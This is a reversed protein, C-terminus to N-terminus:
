SFPDPRTQDFSKLWVSSTDTDAGVPTEKVEAEPSKGTVDDVGSGEVSLKPAIASRAPSTTRNRLFVTGTARYGEPCLVTISPPWTRAGEHPQTDKERRERLPRETEPAPSSHPLLM